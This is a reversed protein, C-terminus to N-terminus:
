YTARHIRVLKPHVCLGQEAINVAPQVLEKCPLSGYNKSPGAVMSGVTGPVCFALFGFSSIPNPEVDGKEDLYM